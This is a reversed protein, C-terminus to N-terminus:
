FLIAACVILSECTTARHICDLDDGTKYSVSIEAMSPGITLLKIFYLALRM